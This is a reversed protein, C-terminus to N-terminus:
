SVFVEVRINKRLVAIMRQRRETNKKTIRLTSTKGDYVKDVFGWRKAEDASLWCDIKKRTNEDLMERIAKESRRSFMGQEKLRAVYIRFMRETARRREIDVTDAVEDLGDFAYTGRHYMYQAPPRIVFRDAALPILSTMSRAWKTALVTIPNPAHLIAGFMQMGEEWNGGCSALHVLIPWKQNIGSLIGLKREFGDAM